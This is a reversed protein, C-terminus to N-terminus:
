RDRRPARPPPAGDSTVAPALTFDFRAQPDESTQDLLPSYDRVRVTRGDPLFQLLRLWANGGNEVGQYDVVQQHVLNGHQGTSELRAAIGTHGSIVLAFNAHRSVLKQWLEEGDNAGGPLQRLPYDGPSASQARGKAKWDYRTGDAVFQNAADRIRTSLYAHTVLIVSHRPHREVVQNAWRVVDDRPAFELALILWNRGGAAFAHWSNETRAPEKDYVGGFGRQRRYDALTIYQTFLSERSTAAGGPGLDHNGPAYAAPVLDRYVLQARRAAQWEEHTNNQTVDGVHLVHVINFRKASAAIWGAQLTYLEPRKWTYNQTDPLVALTFGGEVPPPPAAQAAPFLGLVLLLVRAPWRNARGTQLM